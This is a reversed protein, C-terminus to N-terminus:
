LKKPNIQLEDPFRRTIEISNKKRLINKFNENIEDNLSM